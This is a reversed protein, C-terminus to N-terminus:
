EGEQRLCDSIATAISANDLGYKAYIETTSGQEIFQDPMGFIRLKPSLCGNTQFHELITSGLGGIVSVDEVVFLPRGTKAIAALLAGDLPKIFRANILSIDLKHEALMAQMRLVNDGYCILHGLRGEKLTRWSPSTIIEPKTLDSKDFTVRSKAYRVAIPKPTREFAYDLLAYMERADMPQVIELNPIHRLYAIDYLGQHTEGDGGVIGARDIGFIVHLNQKAIDHSVQDYARQLFSSYIPVFVRKKNIALAGALCVAFSECIGVDIIKEPYQEQFRRLGSGNIMAPIIITFDDKKIRELLYESVINSWTATNEQFHAKAKGTEVDFPEVGHWMGLNDNEALPYGKGKKTVVHLVSPHNDRKVLELYKILTKLNHGDIPGYYQLGFEDFITMNKAFGRIMNGLRIKLETFLKPMFRSRTARVYPKSTRMSTLLKAITGVNKSISMENDNLIIAPSIGPHHGVFNLAEFSLGSNLSGDGVLALVKHHEQDKIRAIEFGAMASIATSSHGAEWCDHISESRKLYGSLGQYQRLRPFDKARGTLIKHTYAQHGVDFILKDQPSDFVRHMAITLEVVGLNSSLHGGTNAINEILFARISKALENLENITLDKLFRPDEIGLLDITRLTKKM